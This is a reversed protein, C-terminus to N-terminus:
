QGTNMILLKHPGGTSDGAPAVWYDDDIDHGEAREEWRSNNRVTFM